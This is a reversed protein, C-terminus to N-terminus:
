QGRFRRRGGTFAGLTQVVAADAQARIELITRACRDMREFAQDLTEGQITRASTMAAPNDQAAELAAGYAIVAEALEEALAEM